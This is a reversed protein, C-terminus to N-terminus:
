IMRGAVFVCIINNGTEDTMPIQRGYTCYTDHGNLSPKLQEPKIRFPGHGDLMVWVGRETRIVQVKGPRCDQHGCCGEYVKPGAPPIMPESVFLLGALLLIM